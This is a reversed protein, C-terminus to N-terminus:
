PEIGQIELWKSLFEAELDFVSEAKNFCQNPVRIGHDGEKLYWQNDYLGIKCVIKGDPTSGYLDSNFFFMPAQNPDEIRVLYSKDTNLDLRLSHRKGVRRMGISSM